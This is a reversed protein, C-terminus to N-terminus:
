TLRALAAEPAQKPLGAFFEMRCEDPTRYGLSSHPRIGNYERLWIDAKVKAEALTYFIEENLFEDRVKSNFSEIFGNQWPKGPEIHITDAGNRAMWKKLAKEIFEAGNDSRVYMPAGRDAFLGGLVCVVDRAKFSKGVRIALGERTFEDEVTLIKLRRGNALSDFMFDYTWVHNPCQATMPIPDRKVPKKRPRKRPLGLGSQRWLRYIRKHNVTMGRRVILAHARRYGYRKFRLAIAKLEECLEADDRPRARYYHSSRAIGSLACCRRLSIGRGHM